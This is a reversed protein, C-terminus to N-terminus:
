KAFAGIVSLNKCVAQESIAEEKVRTEVFMTLTIPLDTKIIRFDKM